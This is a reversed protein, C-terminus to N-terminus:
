RLLRRVFTDVDAAAGLEFLNMHEGEPYAAFQKDDSQLADFLARAWAIPVAADREGHLQLIPIRVDRLKDLVDHRERWMFWGMPLGKMQKSHWRTCTDFSAELVLARAARDRALGAAVSSGLSVGHLIRMDAPVERGFLEDLQDYLARADMAFALETPENTDGSSSRYVLMAMGYGMELLPRMREASPGICAFGGFFSILTPKGAAADQLWARVEVGDESRFTVERVQPLGVEQPSHRTPDFAYVGRLQYHLAAGLALLLALACGVVVYLMM